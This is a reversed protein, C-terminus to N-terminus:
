AGIVRPNHVKNNAIVLNMVENSVKNHAIVFPYEDPFSEIRQVEEKSKNDDLLVGVDNEMSSANSYGLVEFNSHSNKNQM